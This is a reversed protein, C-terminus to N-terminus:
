LLFWLQTIKWMIIWIRIIVINMIMIIIIMTIVIYGVCVCVWDGLWVCAVWVWVCLGCLVCGNVIFIIILMIHTHPHPNRTHPHTTRTHTTSHTNPHGDHFKKQYNYNYSYKCYLNCKIVIEIRNKRNLQHKLNSHLASRGPFIRPLLLPAMESACYSKGNTRRLHSRGGAWPNERSPAGSM